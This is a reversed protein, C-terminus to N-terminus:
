GEGGGRKAARRQEQKTGPTPAWRCTTLGMHALLGEFTKSAIKITFGRDLRRVVRGLHLQQGGPRLEESIKLLFHKSLDELVEDVLNDDRSNKGIIIGDDVHRSMVVRGTGKALVYTSPESVMRTLGAEKVAVTSFHEDFDRMAEYLGYITVNMLWAVEGPDKNFRELCYDRYEPPAKLVKERVPTHLFVRSIDFLKVSCGHHEAMVLMSKLVNSGPSPAFLEDNPKKPMNFPRACFISKVGEARAEDVWVTSLLPGDVEGLEVDSKAKYQELRDFEAFRSEKLISPDSEKEGAVRPNLLEAQTKQEELDENAEESIAATTGFVVQMEARKKEVPMVPSVMSSEDVDMRKLPNSDQM